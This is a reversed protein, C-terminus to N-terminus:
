LVRPLDAYPDVIPWSKERVIPKVPGNSVQLCLKGKNSEVIQARTLPYHEMLERAATTIHQEEVDRKMAIVSATISTGQNTIRAWNEKSQCMPRSM